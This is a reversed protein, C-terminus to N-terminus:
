AKVSRPKYKVGISISEIEGRQLKEFLRKDITM